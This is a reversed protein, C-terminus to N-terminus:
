SPPGEKFPRGLQPPFSGGGMFEGRQTQQNEAAAPPTQAFAACKTKNKELFTKLSSRILQSGRRGGEDEEEEGTWAASVCGGRACRPFM